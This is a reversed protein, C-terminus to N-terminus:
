GCHGSRPTYGHAGPKVRDMELTIGVDIDALGRAMVDAHGGFALSPLIGERILGAPQSALDDPDILIDAPTPRSAVLARAKAWQESEQRGGRRDPLRLWRGPRWGARRRRARRVAMILALMESTSLDLVPLYRDQTTIYRRQQRDYHFALGLAKLVQRDKYFMPRSIGLSIYLAEPAQHSTTKIENILALLRQLRGAYHHLAISQPMSGRMLLHNAHVM